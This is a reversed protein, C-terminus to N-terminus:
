RGVVIVLGAVSPVLVFGYKGRGIDVASRKTLKEGIRYIALNVGLGKVHGFDTDSPSGMIHNVHNSLVIAGIGKVGVGGPDGIPMVAEDTADGHGNGSTGSRHINGTGLNGRFDSDCIRGHDIGGCASNVKDGHGLRNRASDGGEGLGQMSQVDRSPSFLEAAGLGDPSGHRTGAVATGRDSEPGLGILFSASQGQDVPHNVGTPGAM